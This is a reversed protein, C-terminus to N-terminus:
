EKKLETLEKELKRLQRAMKDLQRFRVANKHWTESNDLPTGSSYVGPKSLSRTVMSMGTVTVGDVLEIHGVLGVGGALVCNRGISTSGSIGVCAAMITHEGVQVNHAIQIQNDIKVGDGIVTNGIAGRDICTNAGIEVENGIVVAGLQAVKVWQDEARAFGFGDAGIVAGAHVLCGAGLHCDAYVTVNATLRTQEGVRVNRELVCGPGIIAGAALHCNEGVVAHPGVSANEDVSASAAVVATPHIGPPADPAPAFLTTARAYALYPNDAILANGTYGELDTEHLIVASARTHVLYKRYRSNALFSLRGPTADALTAVGNILCQGDGHLRAGTHRALEELTINM